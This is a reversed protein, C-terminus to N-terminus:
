SLGLRLYWFRTWVGVGHENLILKLIIREDVGLNGLNGTAKPKRVLIRYRNKMERIGTVHGEWRISRSKIV